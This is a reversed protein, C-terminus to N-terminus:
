NFTASAKAKLKVTVQNNKGVVYLDVSYSETIEESLEITIKANGKGYTPSIIFDGVKSRNPGLYGELGDAEMHWEDSYSITFEKSDGKETYTLETQLVKLEEIESESKNGCCVFLMLILAVFIGFFVSIMAKM